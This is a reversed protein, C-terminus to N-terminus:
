DNVWEKCVAAVRDASDTVAIARANIAMQKLTERQMMDNITQQWTTEDLQQQRIMRAAGASVLWQANHAQHDDVAAPFPVFIAALGAAAIESVTLAGARCVVVDAWHYAQAMDDIFESIEAELGAAQYAARTLALQGKGCQHRIALTVGQRAFLAPLLTNLAQAGQSGGTVFIRLAGEHEDYRQAPDALALIDARVPNGVVEANKFAGPFAQLVRTAVKALYRNTLGAVANQEHILLPKRLLFAALGGPGSAFGGFGLVVDPQFNRMVKIAQMVARLLMFPAGLKGKLGNGRLGRVALFHLKIGARPVLQEEMRGASGLWEVQWGAQQLKSAVALAPFVHGGTGGAMMLARM